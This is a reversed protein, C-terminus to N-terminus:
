RLSVLPRRRRIRANSGLKILIRYHCYRNPKHTNGNSNANWDKIFGLNIISGLSFIRLWAEGATAGTSTLLEKTRLNYKIIEKM